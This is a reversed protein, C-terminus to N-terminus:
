RKKGSIVIKSTHTEFKYGNRNLYNISANKIKPISGSSHLGQGTIVTIPPVHMVTTIEFRTNRLNREHMEANWWYNLIQELGYMANQVDLNHFDICFSKKAEEIKRSVERAQDDIFQNRLENRTNKMLELYYGRVPKDNTVDILNKLNKSRWKLSDVSKRPNNDDKVNNSSNIIKGFKDVVKFNNDGNIKSYDDGFIINDHHSDDKDAYNNNSIKLDNIQYLTELKKELQRKEAAKSEFCDNINVLLHLTKSVDSNFWIIALQCLKKPPNLDPNSILFDQLENWCKSNESVYINKMDSRLSLAMSVQSKSFESKKILIAKDSVTKYDNRPQKSIPLDADFNLLIDYITSLKDYDNQQLYWEVLNTSSDNIELLEMIVDQVTLQDLLKQTELLQIYEKVSEAELVLSESHFNNDHRVKVHKHDSFPEKSRVLEWTEKTDNIKEQAAAKRNLIQEIGDKILDYNLMQDIADDLNNNSIGLIHKLHSFPVEPFLQSLELLSHSQMMMEEEEVM